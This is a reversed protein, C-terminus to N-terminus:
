LFHNPEYRDEVFQNLLFLALTNERTRLGTWGRSLGKLAPFPRIKRPPNPVTSGSEWLCIKQFQVENSSPPTM